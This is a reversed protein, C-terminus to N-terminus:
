AHEKAVYKEIADRVIWSASVKKEKAMTLVIEYDNPPITVTLRTGSLKPAPLKKVPESFADHHHLTDFSISFACARRHSFQFRQFGAMEM